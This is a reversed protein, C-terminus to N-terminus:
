KDDDAKLELKIPGTESKGLAQKLTSRTKLIKSTKKQFSEPYLTDLVAYKSELSSKIYSIALRKKKTEPLSTWENHAKKDDKNFMTRLVDPVTVSKVISTYLKKAEENFSQLTSIRADLYSEPDDYASKKRQAEFLLNDLGLLSNINEETVSVTSLSSSPQLVNGISSLFSM